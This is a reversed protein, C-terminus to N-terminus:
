FSSANKKEENLKLLMINKNYNEFFKKLNIMLEVKTYVSLDSDILSKLIIETAEEIEEKVM